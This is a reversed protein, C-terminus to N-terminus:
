YHKGTCTLFYKQRKLYQVKLSNATTTISLKRNSFVKSKVNHKQIQRKLLFDVCNDIQLQTSYMSILGRYNLSPWSSNKSTRKM